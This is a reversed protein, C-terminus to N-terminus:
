LLLQCEVSAVQCVPLHASMWAVRKRVQCDSEVLGAAFVCWPWYWIAVSAAVSRGHVVAGLGTM